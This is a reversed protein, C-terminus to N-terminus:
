LSGIRSPEIGYREAFRKVFSSASAYGVRQAVTKVPLRTTYLLELARALRAEVIIKRLSAGEAALHRRISAGSMAVASEIDSSMWERAPDDAVMNRIREALRPVPQELLGHHGMEYLWLVLGVMAHCALPIRRSQLAACWATLPERVADVAMSALEGAGARIREPVLRRALDLTEEHIAISIAVYEGSAADPLNEVDLRRPGPVLLVEGPGVSLVRDRDRMRKQGQLPLVLFASNIDVAKLCHSQYSRLCLCRSAFDGSSALDHLEALLAAHPEAVIMMAAGLM